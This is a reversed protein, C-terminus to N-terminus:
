RDSKQDIPVLLFRAEQEDLPSSTVAIEFPTPAIERGAWVYAQRDDINHRSGFGWGTFPTFGQRGVVVMGRSEGRVDTRYVGFRRAVEHKLNDGSWGIAGQVVNKNLQDHALPLIVHEGTDVRRLRLAQIDAPVEDLSLSYSDAGSHEELWRSPDASHFVTVWKRSALGVGQWLKAQLEHAEKARSKRLYDRITKKYAAELRTVSSNANASYRAYARQLVADEVSKLVGRENFEEKLKQVEKVKLLDGAAAARKLEDDLTDLMERKFTEYEAEHTASAQQLAAAIPDAAAAPSGISTRPPAPLRHSAQFTKLENDVRTAEDIKLQRTYQQVAQTYFGMMVKRFRATDAQYAAVAAALTESTPLAGSKLFAERERSLSTLEDVKGEAALKKITQVISEELQKSARDMAQRYKGKMADLQDQVDDAWAVGTTIFVTLIAYWKSCAHLRM